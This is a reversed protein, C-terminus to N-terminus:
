DQQVPDDSARSQRMQEEEHPVWGESVSLDNAGPDKNQTRPLPSAVASVRYLVKLIGSFYVTIGKVQVRQM